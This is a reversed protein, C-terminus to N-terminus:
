KYPTVLGYLAGDLGKGPWEKQSIGEQEMLRLLAANLMAEHELIAFPLPLKSPLFWPSIGVSLCMESAKSLLEHHAAYQQKEVGLMIVPAHKEAAFQFAGHAFSLGDCLFPAPVFLGEVFKAQLNSAFCSLPAPALLVSGASLAPLTWASTSERGSIIADEIAQRAEGPKPFTITAGLEQALAAAALYGLVPGVFRVLVEFENEIPFWRIVNGEAAFTELLQARDPKGAARAGQATTSTLLVSKGFAQRAALVMQANPSLGQSFLVLLSGDKQVPRHFTTSFFADFPEIRVKLRPIDALLWALYQAHALSSGTGAITVERVSDFGSLAGDFAGSGSHVSRGQPMQRLHKQAFEEVFSPILSLREALILHGLNDNRRPAEM